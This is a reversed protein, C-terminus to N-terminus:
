FKVLSIGVHAHNEEDELNRVYGADISLEIVPVLIWSIEGGVVDNAVVANVGFRKGAVAGDIKKDFIEIALKPKTTDREFEYMVGTKIDPINDFNPGSM